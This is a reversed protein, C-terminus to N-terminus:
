IFNHFVLIKRNESQHSTFLNIGHEGWWSMVCSYPGLSSSLAVFLWVSFKSVSNLYGKGGKLSIM